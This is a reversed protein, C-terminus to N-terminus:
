NGDKNYKGHGEIEKRRKEAALRKERAAKREAARAEYRKRAREEDTLGDKGRVPGDGDGDETATPARGAANATVLDPYGVTLYGNFGAGGARTRRDLAAASQSTM